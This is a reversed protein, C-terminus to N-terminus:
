KGDRVYLKGDALAPHAWTDGCVRSKALERYEKPDPDLLMLNGLDDLMLLKNDGTRLLTAHYKGVGTKKWLEKGTKAEVCSLHAAAKKPFALPNTGTVVYLHDTGVPVPTAFYCTLAPNKWQEVFGPKGQEAALRLGASGRTISSAVLLDGVRVPTSSSEFLTDAFPYEWYKSGDAPNLSVVNRGTLFVLQRDKELGLTMGSSYSAPDDLSKWAVKGTEADFAVVGAGKAGVMVVVFKGVLVPSCSVGFVLNKGGFEKLADVQWRKKGDAADFCSLVGTIGYTYVRGNAVLPTGRPGNGFPTAFKEKAYTVRWVPKGTAADYAAVEEEDRDQVKTHLVVKGEAVVPSSHGEGVPQRWLVKPPEKWPAVKEPSTGDRNPGLWQPWDGANAALTCCFLVLLSRMRPM